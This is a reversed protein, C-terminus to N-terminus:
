IERALSKAKIAARTMEDQHERREAAMAEREANVRAHSEVTSAIAANMMTHMESLGRVSM